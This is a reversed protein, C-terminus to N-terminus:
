PRQSSARQSCPSRPEIANEVSEIKSTGKGLRGEAFDIGIALAAEERSLGQEELERIRM